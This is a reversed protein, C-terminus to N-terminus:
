KRIASSPVTPAIPAAPIGPAPRMMIASTKPATPTGSSVMARTAPMSRIMSMIRVVVLTEPSAATAVQVQYSQPFAELISGVFPLLTVEKNVVLGDAPSDITIIPDTNDILQNAQVFRENGAKDRAFFGLVYVGETEFFPTSVDLLLDNVASSTDEFLVQNVTSGNPLQLLM